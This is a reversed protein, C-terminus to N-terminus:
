IRNLELYGNLLLKRVGVTGRLMGILLVIFIFLLYCLILVVKCRRPVMCNRKAKYFLFISGKREYLKMEKAGDQKCNDKATTSICTM